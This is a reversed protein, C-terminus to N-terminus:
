FVARIKAATAEYRTRAQYHAYVRMILDPSKHGMLYQIEKLDMGAEFLRTCYTHRLTHPTVKIGIDAKEAHAWMKRFASNSYIQGNNMTFIYVSRSEKMREKLMRLADEPLPIKRRAAKTKLEKEIEGKEHAWTCVRNVRLEGRAFDIDSWMLGCLEGRRLGSALALQIFAKCKKAGPQKSQDLAAYIEQIDDDTLAAKEETEEGSVRVSKNMPSKYIINLAEALEFIGNLIQRIKNNLSESKSAVSNFLEQLHVATISRIPYSSLAPLIHQNLPSLIANKSNERLKPEKFTKYWVYAVEGFTDNRSLDVNRAILESADQVKEDLEKKTSGYIWKRKGNPLKVVEYNVNKRPM